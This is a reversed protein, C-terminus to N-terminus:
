LLRLPFLMKPPILDMRPLLIRGKAESGGWRTLSFAKNKRGSFVNLDNRPKATANLIPVIVLFASASIM